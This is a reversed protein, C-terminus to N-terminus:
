IHQMITAPTSRHASPQPEWSWWCLRKHCSMHWNTSSLTCLLRSCICTILLSAEFHAHYLQSIRSTTNTPEQLRNTSNKGRLIFWGSIGKVFLRLMLIPVLYIGPNDWSDRSVLYELIWPARVHSKRPYQLGPVHGTCKPIGISTGACTTANGSMGGELQLNTFGLRLQTQTPSVWAQWYNCVQLVNMLTPNSVTHQALPSQLFSPFPFRFCPFPFMSLVACARTFLSRIESAAKAWTKNLDTEAGTRDWVRSGRNGSWPRKNPPENQKSM